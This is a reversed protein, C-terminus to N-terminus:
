INISQIQQQISEQLQKDSAGPHKEKLLEYLVMSRKKLGEITDLFPKIKVQEQTIIKEHETIFKLLESNKQIDNAESKELKDIDKQMNIISEKVSNIFDSYKDMDKITKDYEKIINFAEKLYQKEITIM